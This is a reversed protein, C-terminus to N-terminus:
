DLWATAVLADRVADEVVVGVPEAAGAPPIAEPTVELKAKTKTAAPARKM